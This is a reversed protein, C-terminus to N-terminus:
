SLTDLFGSVARLLPGIEWADLGLDHGAQDLCVHVANKCGATVIEIGRETMMAGKSPSAQLLLVPCDIQAAIQAPDYGELYERGRGTAHYDLVGPDMMHLTKAFGRLGIAEVGPRDAFRVMEGSGPMRVPLSALCQVMEELSGTGGAISQFASFEEVFPESEMWAVLVEVELPSDGLILARVCEPARRAAELAVCGGASMGFVVAPEDLQALFGVLDEVHYRSQYRDPTRGSRGQGRMDLAYLHWGVSLLPVLPLFEQWRGPLGHLLVLPPGSPPGEAVNLTVGDLVVDREKM